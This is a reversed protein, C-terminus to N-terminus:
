RKQSFRGFIISTFLSDIKLNENPNGISLITNVSDLLFVVDKGLIPNLNHSEYFHMSSDVVSVKDFGYMKLLFRADEINKTECLFYLNVKDDFKKKLKKHYVKWEGLKLQCSTCSPNDIYRLITFQTSDNKGMNVDIKRGITDYIVDNNNKEKCGTLMLVSAVFILTLIVKNM